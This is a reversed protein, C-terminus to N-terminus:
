NRSYKIPINLRLSAMSIADPIPKYFEISQVVKLAAKDLIKHGCSKQLFVRKISGDKDLTFSIQSVGELKRRKAMKPYNKRENLISYLGAIFSAKMQADFLPAKPEFVKRKSSEPTKTM